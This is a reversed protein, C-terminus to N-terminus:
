AFAGNEVPHASPPPPAPPSTEELEPGKKLFSKNLYFGDIVGGSADSIGIFTRCTHVKREPMYM